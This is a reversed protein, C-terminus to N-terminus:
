AGPRAPEPPYRYAGTPQRDGDWVQTHTMISMPKAVGQARSSDLVAEHFAAMAPVPGLERCAQPGNAGPYLEEYWCFGAGSDNTWWYFTDVDPLREIVGAVAARYLAQAEPQHLCLAFCPNRSRRPHDVRPGRLHPYDRYFAEPLYVPERGLFAGKLGHRRLVALKQEALRMNAEVMSRDILPAVADPPAFHFLDPFNASYELYPDGPDTRQHPDKDALHNVVMRVAYRGSLVTAAAAVQDFDDLDGTAYNIVLRPLAKSM